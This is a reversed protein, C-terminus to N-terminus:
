ILSNASSQMNYRLIVESVSQDTIWFSKHAICAHHSRHSIFSFSLFVTHMLNVLFFFFDLHIRICLLSSVPLFPTRICIGLRKSKGRKIMSDAHPNYRLYLKDSNPIKAVFYVHMEVAFGPTIIYFMRLILAPIRTSRTPGKLLMLCLFILFLETWPPLIYTSLIGMYSLCNLEVSDLAINFHFDRCCAFLTM